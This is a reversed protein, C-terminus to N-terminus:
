IGLFLLYYVSIHISRQFLNNFSFLILFTLNIACSRKTVNSVYVQFVM